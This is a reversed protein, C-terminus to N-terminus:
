SKGSKSAGALLSLGTPLLDPILWRVPTLPTALLTEADVPEYSSIESKWKPQCGIQNQKMQEKLMADEKQNQIKDFRAPFPACAGWTRSKRKHPFRDQNGSQIGCAALQVQVYNM